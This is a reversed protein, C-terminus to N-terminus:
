LYHLIDLLVECKDTQYGDLTVVCKNINCKM